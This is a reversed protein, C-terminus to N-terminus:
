ADVPEESKPAAEARWDAVLRDVYHRGQGLTLFQHENDSYSSWGSRDQSTKYVMTKAGVAEAFRTLYEGFSETHGRQEYLKSLKADVRKLTKAMAVATRTDVSYVNKYRVDFGYLKRETNLRGDYHRDDGQSDATLHSLYLGGFQGLDYADSRPNQISGHGETHLMVPYARVHFYGDRREVYIYLGLQTRPTKAM